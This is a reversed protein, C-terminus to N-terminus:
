WKANGRKRRFFLGFVSCFGIVVLIVFFFTEYKDFFYNDTQRDGKDDMFNINTNLIDNVTIGLWEYGYSDSTRYELTGLATFRASYRTGSNTFIYGNVTSNTINCINNSNGSFGFTNDKFNNPVVLTIKGFSSNVECFAGGSIPVYDPYQTGYEVAFVPVVFVSFMLILVFAFSVVKRM